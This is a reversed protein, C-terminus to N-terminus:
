PGQSSPRLKPQGKCRHLAVVPLRVQRAAGAAGLGALSKPVGVVVEAGGLAVLYTEKEM